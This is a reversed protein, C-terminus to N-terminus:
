ERDGRGARLRSSGARLRDAQRHGGAGPPPLHPLDPDGDPAPVGADDRHDRPDPVPHQRQGGPLPGIGRVAAHRCAPHAGRRQRRIRDHVGHVRGRARGRGAAPRALGQDHLAQDVRRPRPPD